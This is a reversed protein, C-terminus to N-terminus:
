NPPILRPSVCVAPPAPLVPSPHARVTTSSGRLSVDCALNVTLQYTVTTFEITVGQDADNNRKSVALTGPGDPGMVHCLASSVPDYDEVRFATAGNPSIPSCSPGVPLPMNECFNFSYSFTWISSGPGTAGNEGSLASLDWIDGDTDTCLCKGGTLECTALAGDPQSVLALAAAALAPFSLQGRRRMIVVTEVTRQRPGGLPAALGASTPVPLGRKPQGSGSSPRGRCASSAQAAPRGTGYVGTRLRLDLQLGRHLPWVSIEQLTVTSAAHPLLATAHQTSLASHQSVLRICASKYAAHLM